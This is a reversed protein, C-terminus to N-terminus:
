NNFRSLDVIATFTNIHCNLNSIRAAVVKFIKTYQSTVGYMITSNKEPLKSSHAAYITM